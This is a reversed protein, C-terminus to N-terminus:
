KMIVDANVEANSNAPENEIPPKVASYGATRSSSQATTVIPSPTEENLPPFGVVGASTQATAGTVTQTTAPDSSNTPIQSTTEILTEANVSQPNTEMLPEDLPEDGTGIVGEDKTGISQTSKTQVNDTNIGDKLPLDQNDTHFYSEDVTKIEGPYHPITSHSVQINTGNIVGNSNSFTVWDIRGCNPCVIKDTSLVWTDTGDVRVLEVQTQEFGTIVKQTCHFGFGDTWLITNNSATITTVLVLLAASIVIALIVKRM